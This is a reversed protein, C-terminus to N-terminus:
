WYNSNLPLLLTFYANEYVNIFCAILLVLILYALLESPKGQKAQGQDEEQYEFIEGEESYGIDNSDLV